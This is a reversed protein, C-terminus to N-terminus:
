RMQMLAVLTANRNARAVDIARRGNWRVYPSAGGRLLARAADTHGSETALWLAPAVRGDTANLPARRRAFLELLEVSNARAALQVANWGDDDTIGARAGADLLLNVLAVPANAVAAVAVATRGANGPANVDAGVDILAATTAQQKAQAAAHLARDGAVDAADVAAGARAIRRVLMAHGNLAAHHLPRRGDADAIDPDAGASALLTAVATDGAAGAVASQALPTLGADSRGNVDASGAILLEVIDRYGREAATHLPTLGDPISRTNADAGEDILARTIGIHNREVALHLATFGRDDASELPAGLLLATRVIVTNGFRTATRLPAGTLVTIWGIVILAIAIAGARALSRERTRARRVASGTRTAAPGTRAVAHARARAAAISDLLPLAAAGFGDIVIRDDDRLDIIVATRFPRGATDFAIDRIARLPIARRALPRIIWVATDDVAVSYPSRLWHWLLRPLAIAAVIFYAPRAVLGLIIGSLSAALMVVDEHLARHFLLDARARQQSPEDSRRSADIYSAAMVIFHTYGELDADVTVAHARTRTGFRVFGRVVSHQMMTIDSWRLVGTRGTLSLGDPAIVVSPARASLRRQTLVLLWAGGAALLLAALALVGTGRMVLTAAFPVVLVGAIVRAVFLTRTRYQFRVPGDPPTLRALEPELAETTTSM